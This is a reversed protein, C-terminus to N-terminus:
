PYLQKSFANQASQFYKSSRKQLRFSCNTPLTNKLYVKKLNSVNLDEQLEETLWVYNCVTWLFLVGKSYQRSFSLSFWKFICNNYNVIFFLEVELFNWYIASNTALVNFLKDTLRNQYTCSCKFKAKNSAKVDFCYFSFLMFEFSETCCFKAVIELM